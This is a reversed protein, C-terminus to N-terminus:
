TKKHSNTRQSLEDLILALGLLYTWLLSLDKAKSSGAIQYIIETGQTRFLWGFIRCDVVYYAPESTQKSLHSTSWADSTGLM